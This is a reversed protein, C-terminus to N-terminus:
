MLRTVYRVFDFGLCMNGFYKRFKKGDVGLSGMNVSGRRIQYIVGFM